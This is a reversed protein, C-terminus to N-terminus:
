VAILDWMHSSLGTCFDSSLVLPNPAPAWLLSCLEKGLGNRTRTNILAYKSVIVLTQCLQQIGVSFGDLEALYKITPWGLLSFRIYINKCPRKKM